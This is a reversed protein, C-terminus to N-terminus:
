FVKYVIFTIFLVTITNFSKTITTKGMEQCKCFDVSTYKLARLWKKVSLVYYIVFEVRTDGTLISYPHFKLM